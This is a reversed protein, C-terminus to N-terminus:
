FAPPSRYLRHLLMISGLVVCEWARRIRRVARHGSSQKIGPTMSHPSVCLTPSPMGVCIIPVLANPIGSDLCIGEFDAGEQEGVTRDRELTTYSTMVAAIRSRNSLWGPHPTPILHLWSTPRGSRRDPIPDNTKSLRRNDKPRMTPRFELEPHDVMIAASSSRKIMWARVDSSRASCVSRVARRASRSINGVSSARLSSSRFGLTRSRPSGVRDCIQALMLWSIRVGTFPMRPMVSSAISVPRVECCRSYRPRTFLEASARRVTM